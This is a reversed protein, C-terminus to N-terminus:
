LCWLIPAVERNLTREWPRGPEQFDGWLEAQRGGEAPGAEVRSSEPGRAGCATHKGKEEKANGRGGGSRSVSTM